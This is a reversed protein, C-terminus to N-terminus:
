CPQGWKLEENLGCELIIMRLKSLEEQWNKTKSLFEDIKPNMIEM